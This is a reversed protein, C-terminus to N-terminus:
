WASATEFAEVVANQHDAVHAPSSKHTTSGLFHLCVHGNMNNGSRTSGAHPMGSLSAAILRGDIDVIVPRPTWTWEGFASFMTATDNATIPEVDAHSGNSGSAIQWSLGTRVDTITVIKGETLLNKAVNWALLEIEISPIEEEEQVEPTVLAYLEDGTATAIGAGMRINMGTSAFATASPFILTM